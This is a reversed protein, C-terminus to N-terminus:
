RSWIYFTNFYALRIQISIKSNYLLIEIARVRIDPKGQMVLIWEQTGVIGYILSKHDSKLM